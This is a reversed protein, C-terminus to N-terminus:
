YQADFRVPPLLGQRILSELATHATSSWSFKTRIVRSADLAKRRWEVHQSVMERMKQALDDIDAEAWTGCDQTTSSVFEMFEPDKIPVMRHAIPMFCGEVEKLYETQGSCNVAITPLGTAMAEILPLGWGEARTPYVFADAINYIVFLEERKLAGTLIHINPVKFRAVMDRLAAQKREQDIFYDAKILLEVAPDKGFAAAFAQFLQSYGKREEYKGLMLFRFKEPARGGPCPRCHPHFAEADVGEPVVDVKGSALGQNTLIGKGWASPTWVLNAQNLWNVYAPALKNHEFVSWVVNRGKAEFTNRNAFGAFWINIDAPSSQRLLEEVSPARFPNYEVLVSELFSFRKLQECFCSFHTGIGLINREGILNIKV